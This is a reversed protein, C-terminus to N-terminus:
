QHIAGKSIYPLIKLATKSHLITEQINFRLMYSSYWGPSSAGYIGSCNADDLPTWVFNQKYANAGASATRSSYLKTWLGSTGKNLHEYGVPPQVEDLVPVIVSADANTSPGFNRPVGTLRFRVWSNKPIDIKALGNTFVFQFKKHSAVSEYLGHIVSEVSDIGIVSDIINQSGGNPTELYLQLSDYKLLGNTGNDVFLHRFAPPGKIACKKSHLGTVKVICLDREVGNVITTNQLPLTEIRPSEGYGFTVTQADTHISVDRYRLTMHSQLSGFFQTQADATTKITNTGKKLPVNGWTGGGMRGGLIVLSDTASYIIVLRMNDLNDLDQFDYGFEDTLNVVTDVTAVATYQNLVIATGPTVADYDTLTPDVTFTVSVPDPTLTGSPHDKKCASCVLATVAVLFSLKKMM